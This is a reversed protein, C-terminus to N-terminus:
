ESYHKVYIQVMPEKLKAWGAEERMVETVRQMYREFTARDQTRIGAQAAMTEAFQGVQAFSADVTREVDIAQLLREVSAPSAPASAGIAPSAAAPPLAGPQACGALSLVGALAMGGAVILRWAGGSQTM